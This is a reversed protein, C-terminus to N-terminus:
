LKYLLIKKKLTARSIGLIRAAASKNNNVKDLVFKITGSETQRNVMDLVSSANEDALKEFYAILKNKICQELEDKM